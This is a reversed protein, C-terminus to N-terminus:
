FLSTERKTKRSIETPEQTIETPEQTCVFTWVHKDPRTRMRPYMNMNCKKGTTREGGASSKHQPFGERVIRTQSLRRSFVTKWDQSAEKGEREALSDPRCESAFTDRFMQQWTGDVGLKRVKEAISSSTAAAMGPTIGSQENDLVAPTPKQVFVFRQLAGVTHKTRDIAKDSIPVRRKRAPPKRSALWGRPISKVMAVHGLEQTMSARHSYYLQQKGSSQHMLQMISGVTRTAYENVSWDIIADLKLDLISEDQPKTAKCIQCRMTTANNPQLCKDGSPMIGPCIWDNDMKGAANDPQFLMLFCNQVFMTCHVIVYTPLSLCCCAIFTEVPSRVGCSIM